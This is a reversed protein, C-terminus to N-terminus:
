GCCAAEASRSAARSRCCCGGLSATPATETVPRAVYGAEALVPGWAAAAAAPADIRLRKAAVDIEAAVEPDHAQLAQAIRQACAGCHMDDILFTLM